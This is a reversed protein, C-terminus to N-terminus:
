GGANISDLVALISRVDPMGGQHHHECMRVIGSKDIVATVNRPHERDESWADWERSVAGRPLFDALIPFRLGGLYRSYAENVYMSEADVTLIATNREEFADYAREFNRLTAEVGYDPAGTFALAFFSVIVNQKGRFDSLTWRKVTSRPLTFDPAVTGM